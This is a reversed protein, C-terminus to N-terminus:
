EADKITLTGEKVQKVIEAYYTNEENMPVTWVQGDIEAVVCNNESSGIDKQYKANKIEM